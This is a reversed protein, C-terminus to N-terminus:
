AQHIGSGQPPVVHASGHTFSGGCATCPMQTTVRDVLQMLAAILAEAEYLTYEEGGV